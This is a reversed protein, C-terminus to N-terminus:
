KKVKINNLLEKKTKFVRSGDVGLRGTVEDMSAFHTSVFDYKETVKNNKNIKVEIHNIELHLIMPYGFKSAYLIYVKEGINHTTQIQM